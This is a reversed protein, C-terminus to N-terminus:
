LIGTYQCCSFNWLALKTKSSIETEALLCQISKNVWQNSTQKFFLKQFKNNWWCQTNIHAAKQQDRSLQERYWFHRSLLALSLNVYVKAGSMRPTISLSTKSLSCILSIAWYVGNGIYVKLYVPWRWESISSDWYFHPFVGTRWAHTLVSLSPFVYNMAWSLLNKNLTVGRPWWVM